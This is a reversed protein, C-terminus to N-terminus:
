YSESGYSSDRRERLELGREVVSCDIEGWFRVPVTKRGALRHACLRHHGNWVIVKKGCRIAALPPMQEGEHLSRLISQVNSTSVGPQTAIFERSISVHYIRPMGPEDYGGNGSDPWRYPSNPLDYIVDDDIVADFYDRTKGSINQLDV